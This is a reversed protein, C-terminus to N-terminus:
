NTINIKGKFSKNEKGEYKFTLTYKHTVGTDIIGVGSGLKTSITPVKTEKNVEILKNRDNKEIEKNNKTAIGKLTYTLEDNVSNESVDLVLQYSTLANGEKSNNIISLEYGQEFNPILDLSILGEDNTMAILSPNVNEQKLVNNNNKCKIIAYFSYACGISVLIFSLTVIISFILNNKNKIKM